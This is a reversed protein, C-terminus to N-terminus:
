SQGEAAKAEYRVWTEPHEMRLFAAIDMRTPNSHPIESLLISLLWDRGRQSSAVKRITDGKAAFTQNKPVSDFPTDGPDWGERYDLTEQEGADADEERVPEVDAFDFSDVPGPPQPTEVPGTPEPHSEGDEPVSATAAPLQARESGYLATTEDSPLDSDSILRRVRAASGESLPLNKALKKGATKAWMAEPWDRWFKDTKAKAKCKAVDSADLVAIRIMGDRHKAYAWAGIRDGREQGLPPKRHRIPNPNGPSEDWDFDDNAHVVGTILDWGYEAVMDALGHIMLLLSVTKKGTKSDKYIALAAQNGDPVLGKTACKVLATFFSTRDALALDPNELLAIGTVRAFRDFSVNEPLVAIIQSRVAENENVQRALEQQPTIQAIESM